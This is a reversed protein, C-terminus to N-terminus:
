VPYPTSTILLIRYPVTLTTIEISAQRAEPSLFLGRPLLTPVSENTAYAALTQFM